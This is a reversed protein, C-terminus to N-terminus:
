GRDRELEALKAYKFYSHMGGLLAWTLGARGDLLGAKLFYRGAFGTALSLSHYWRSRKGRARAQQAWLGSYEDLKALYESLTPYSFHDLHGRLRGVSGGVQLREHVLAPGYEARGRPFLRLQWDPYCGGHKLWRGMFHFRRPMEYALPWPGPALTCARGATDASIVAQIEAALEGSVREDADLSLIWDGEAQTFAWNKTAGYGRWECELVRAGEAAALERTADESGTDVVLREDAWAVSHLCAAIDAAENRAVIVVSVRM